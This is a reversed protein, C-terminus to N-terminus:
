TGPTTGPRLSEMFTTLEQVVADHRDALQEFRETLRIREGEPIGEIATALMQDVFYHTAFLPNSPSRWIIPMLPRGGVIARGRSMFRAGEVGTAWLPRQAFPLTAAHTEVRGCYARLEALFMRVYDPTETGAEIQAFSHHFVPANRMLWIHVEMSYPPLPFGYPNAYMREYDEKYNAVEGLYPDEIVPGTGPVVEDTM